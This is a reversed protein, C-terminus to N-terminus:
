LFFEFLDLKNAYLADRACSKLVEKRNSGEHVSIAKLIAELNSKVFASRGTLVLHRAICVKGQLYQKMDSGDKNKAQMAKVGRLFDKKLLM